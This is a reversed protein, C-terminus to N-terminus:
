KEYFAFFDKSYGQDYRGMTYQKQEPSLRDRKVIKNKQDRFYFNCVINHINADGHMARTCGALVMAKALDKTSVHHGMAFVLNGDERIGFASRNALFWLDRKAMTSRGSNDVLFGGLGIESDSIKGHKVIKEVVKGNKVILHSLQRADIVMSSPIDDAWEVVDVSNDRYVVMTAMGAVMPYVEQGRFVAGAGRSHQQMWMANTIAVIRELDEREPRYSISQIGPETQGIFFRPKLRNADFVALYVISNPFELSPRYVTKYVLPRGDSGQPLADATWTGEGEVKPSLYLPAIRSPKPFFPDAGEEAPPKVEAEVAERRDEREESDVFGSEEDAKDSADDDAPDLSMLKDLWSPVLSQDSFDVDRQVDATEVSIRALRQLSNKQEEASSFSILILVLVASVVVRKPM